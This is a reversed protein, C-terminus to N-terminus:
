KVYKLLWASMQAYVPEKTVLINNHGAGPVPLWQKYHAQTFGDFLSKGRSFDILNDADGHVVLVPVKIQTAWSEPVVQNIDVGGLIKIIRILVTETIGPLTIPFSRIQDRIVGALSDFSSVVLLSKWLTPSKEVAHVAYAGGM